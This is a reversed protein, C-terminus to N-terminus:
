DAPVALAMELKADEAPTLVQRAVERVFGFVPPPLMALFGARENPNMAPLMWRLYRTMKEPPISGVLQHEAEGIETDSKKAWLAPNLELEEDAMHVLLEGAVRSLRMVFAHGQHEADAHNPDISELAALLGPLLAEQDEHAAAFEKALEPAADRVLPMIFQDENHAHSELLEFIDRVSTRLAGLEAADTFDTRGSQQVLDFLMVRLGKHINRYVDVRETTKM